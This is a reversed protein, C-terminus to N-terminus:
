ARGHHRKLIAHARDLDTSLVLLKIEMMDLGALGAQNEGDIECKIGESQLVTRLLEAENANNTTFVVTLDDPHVMSHKWSGKISIASKSQTQFRELSPSVAM